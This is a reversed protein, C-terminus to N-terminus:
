RAETWGLKEKQAVAEGHTLPLFGDKVVDEQGPRSLLYSLLERMLPDDMTEGNLVVVVYLPRILPYRRTQINAETPLTLVGDAGAVPVLRVGVPEGHSLSVMSIAAPDKAVAEILDDRTSYEGVPIESARSGLLRGELYRRTGSSKKPGLVHVPLLGPPGSVNLDSWTSAVDTGGAKVLISSEMSDAFGRVPNSKHVIIGMVDQCIVLEILRRGSQQEFEAREQVTLPRSMLGIWRQHDSISPLATESGQCDINLKVTPHLERFSDSWIVAVQQLTQSGTLLVDGEVEQQPTYPDLDALPAPSEYSGALPLPQTTTFGEDARSTTLLLRMLMLLLLGPGWLSRNPKSIM